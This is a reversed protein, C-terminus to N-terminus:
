SYFLCEEVAPACRNTAGWLAATPWGSATVAAGPVNQCDASLEPRESDAQEGMTVPQTYFTWAKDKEGALEAARPGM